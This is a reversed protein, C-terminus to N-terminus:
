LFYSVYVNFILVYIIHIFAGIYHFKGAYTDWKFQIFEKIVKSQFIKLENTEGLAEMLSEESENISPLINITYKIKYLKKDQDGM